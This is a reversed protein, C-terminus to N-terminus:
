NSNQYCIGGGSAYVMMPLPIQELLQFFLGEFFLSSKAPTEDRALLSQSLSWLDLLGLFKGENDVLLHLLNSSTDLYHEQWSRWFESVSMRAPLIAVPEMLSKLKIRALTTSKLGATTSKDPLHKLIRDLLVQSRIIGLPLGEKSAIAIIESPNSQFKTLAAVLNTTPEEVPIRRMFRALTLYPNSM